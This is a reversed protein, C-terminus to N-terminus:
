YSPWIFSYITNKYYYERLWALDDEWRGIAGDMRSDLRSKNLRVMGAIHEVVAKLGLADPRIARALAAQRTKLPVDRRVSYKYVASLPHTDNLGLAGTGGGTGAVAEWEPWKFGISALFALGPHEAIRRDGKVYEAPKDDLWWEAFAEQSLYVCTFKFRMGIEVSRKLYAEDFDERGVVVIQDKQWIGANGIVGDERMIEDRLLVASVPERGTVGVVQAFFKGPQDLNTRLPRYLEWNHLFYEELRECSNKTM